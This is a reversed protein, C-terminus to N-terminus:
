RLMRKGGECVGDDEGEAIELRWNGIELANARM